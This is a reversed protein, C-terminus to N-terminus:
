PRLWERLRAAVRASPGPGPLVLASRIRECHELHRAREDLLQMAHEALMEGTVEDGLLEPFVREGAVINPLGVHETRLWRRAVARLLPDARYAIVPPVNAAVCDLTVTGSTALAVDFAPLVSAAGHPHVAIGRDAATRVAWAGTDRDLAPPLLVRADIAGREALVLEVARLMPALMRRVEHPRSGPLLALCEAYPTLGLRERADGRSVGPSEFSPHGVFQVSAGAERWIEVEFPLLVALEDAASALKRAREPRWAWVQPPAYWLVRTGRRRLLPGLRANFESFGVLLAAAPRRKAAQRTVALAARALAPARAVVGGVGMASLTSIEGILEVGAAELAPGGIGFSRVSLQSVVPAAIVDGSPEGAVTLM